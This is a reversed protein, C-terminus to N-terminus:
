VLGASKGGRPAAERPARDRWVHDSRKSAHRDESRDRRQDSRSRPEAHRERRNSRRDEHRERQPARPKERADPDREDLPATFGAGAQAGLREGVQERLTRTKVEDVAGEALEGLQFPGFSVRILRNVALGLAGLVNRIERNKGERMAFTLWVN